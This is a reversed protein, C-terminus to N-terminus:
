STDSTLYFPGIQDFFFNKNMFESNTPNLINAKEILKRFRLKKEIMEDVDVYLAKEELVHYHLTRNVAIESEFFIDDATKSVRV